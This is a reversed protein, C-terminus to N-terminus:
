LNTKSREPRKPEAGVSVVETNSFTRFQFAAPRAGLTAGCTEPSQFTFTQGVVIQAASIKQTFNEVDDTRFGHMSVGTQM